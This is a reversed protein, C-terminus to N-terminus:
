YVDLIAGRLIEDGVAADEGTGLGRRLENGAVADEMPLEDGTAADEVGSSMVPAAVMVVCSGGGDM